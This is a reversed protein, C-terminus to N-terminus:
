ALVSLLHPQLSALRPRALSLLSFLLAPSSLLGPEAQSVASFSQLLRALPFGPTASLCPLLYLRVQDTMVPALIHRCVQVMVETVLGSDECQEVVALPRVIM